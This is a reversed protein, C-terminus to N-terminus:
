AVQVFSGSKVSKYCTALFSKKRGSVVREMEYMCGDFGRAILDARLNQMSELNDVSRITFTDNQNKSNEIKFSAAM